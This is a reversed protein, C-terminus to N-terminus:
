SGIRLAGWTSPSFASGECRRRTPLDRLLRAIAWAASNACRSSRAACPERGTWWTWREAGPRTAAPTRSTFAKWLKGPTKRRLQAPSFWFASSIYPYLEEPFALHSLRPFRPVRPIFPFRPSFFGPFTGGTGNMGCAAANERRGLLAAVSFYH